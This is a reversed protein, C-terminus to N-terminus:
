KTFKFQEIAQEFSFDFKEDSVLVELEPFMAEFRIPDLKEKLEKNIILRNPKHGALKLLGYEQAIQLFLPAKNDRKIDKM